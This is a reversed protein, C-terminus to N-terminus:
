ACPARAGIDSHRHRVGVNDDRGDGRISSSHQVAYSWRRYSPSGSDSLNLKRTKGAALYDSRASFILSHILLPAATNTSARRSFKQTMGAEDERHVGYTRATPM